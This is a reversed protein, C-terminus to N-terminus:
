KRDTALYKKLNPRNKMTEFFTSLHPYTKPCIEIFTDDELMHFLVFDAYSIREGLIYPGNKDALIDNWTKFTKPATEERYTKVLDEAPDNFTVKVWRQIWDNVMDTYADLIQNEEDDQGEYQGLKRSLFRMIPMTKNYVKDDVTIYPMTPEHVNQALLKSKHEMWEAFTFRVYETDVGADELLLRIFEGRGKTASLYFIYM